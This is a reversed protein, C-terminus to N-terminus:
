SGAFECGSSVCNTPSGFDSGGDSFKCGGGLVEDAALEIPRLRPKVYPRRERKSLAKKM